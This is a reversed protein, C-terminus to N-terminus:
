LSLRHPIWSTWDVDWSLTVDQPSVISFASTIVRSGQYLTVYIGVWLMDIEFTGVLHIVFYIFPLRTAAGYLFPMIGVVLIEEIGAM